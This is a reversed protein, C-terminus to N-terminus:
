SKLGLSYIEEWMNKHSTMMTKKWFKRLNIKKGGQWIHDQAQVIFSKVARINAMDYYALTNKVEM